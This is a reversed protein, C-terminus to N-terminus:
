KEEDVESFDGPPNKITNAVEIGSTDEINLGPLKEVHFEKAFTNTM